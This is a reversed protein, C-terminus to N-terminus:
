RPRFTKRVCLCVCLCVSLCELSKIDTWHWSNCQVSLFLIEESLQLRIDARTGGDPSHKRPSPKTHNIPATAHESAAAAPGITRHPVNVVAYGAVWILEVQGYRRPYTCDTGALPRYRKRSRLLPLHLEHPSSLHIQTIGKNLEFEVPVLKGTVEERVQQRRRWSGRLM